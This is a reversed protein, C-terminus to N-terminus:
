RDDDELLLRVAAVEQAEDLLVAEAPRTLLLAQGHLLTLLDAPVPIPEPGALRLTIEIQYLLRDVQLERLDQILGQLLHRVVPIQM